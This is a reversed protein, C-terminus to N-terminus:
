MKRSYQRIVIYDSASADVGFNIIRLGYGEGLIINEFIDQEIYYHDSNRIPVDGGFFHAFTRIIFKFKTLIQKQTKESKSSFHNFKEVFNLTDINFVWTGKFHTGCEEMKYGMFTYYQKKENWKINEAILTRYNYWKTNLALKNHFRDNVDIIMDQYYDSYEGGYQSVDVDNYEFRKKTNVWFMTHDNDSQYEALRERRDRSTMVMYRTQYEDVAMYKITSLYSDAYCRVYKFTNADFLNSVEDVSKNSRYSQIVESMIKATPTQIGKNKYLITNKMEIPLPMQMILDYNNKFTIQVKRIRDNSIRRRFDAEFGIPAYEENSNIVSLPTYTMTKM